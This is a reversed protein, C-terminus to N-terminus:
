HGHLKSIAGAMSSVPECTFSMITERERSLKGHCCDITTAIKLRDLEVRTDQKDGFDLELHMGYENASVLARPHNSRQLILKVWDKCREQEAKEALALSLPIDSHDAFRSRYTPPLGKTAAEPKKADEGDEGKGVSKTEDFLLERAEDRLRLLGHQDDGHFGFFSALAWRDSLHPKRNSGETIMEAFLNGNEDENLYQRVAVLELSSRALVMAPKWDEITKSSKVSTTRGEILCVGVALSHEELHVWRTVEKKRGQLGPPFRVLFESTSLPGNGYFELDSLEVTNDDSVPPGANGCISPYVTCTRWDMIRGVHYDNDLTNYIRVSKGVLLEGTREIDFASESGELAQEVVDHAYWLESRPPSLYEVNQNATRDQPAKRTNADPYDKMHKSLLSCVFERNCSYNSRESEVKEFYHELVSASGMDHCQNCYLEGEPVEQGNKPREIHPYYHYLCGLHFEVHCGRQECMLVTKDKDMEDRAGRCLCCDIVDPIAEVKKGEVDSDLASMIIKTNPKLVNQGM